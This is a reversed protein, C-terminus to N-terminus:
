EEPKGSAVAKKYQPLYPLLRDSVLKIIIVQVPWLVAAETLRAPMLGLFAKGYLISIWLSNLCVTCALLILGCGIILRLWTREKNYLLLGYFIGVLFATLTFGPFYPGSPFMLAGLIDGVAYTIGALVPGYLMAAIAIPLFGFGIRVILMNISLFRTLIVELALLVSLTVLAERWRNKLARETKNKEM